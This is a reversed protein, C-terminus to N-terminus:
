MTQGVVQATTFILNIDRELPKENEGYPRLYGTALDAFAKMAADINWGTYWNKAILAQSIFHTLRPNEQQVKIHERLPSPLNTAESYFKVTDPTTIFRIFDWAENQHKSKKVVSQIWYNAVNVPENLQPAPLIELNMEPARAKIRDYDYAFGFYFASQGRTFVDLATGMKENWTYVESTPRAFASYFNLVKLTPHDEKTKDLGNAFTVSKGSAMTVGNQMLLLSFIDFVNEINEGTGLAVGAQLIKGDKDFKRTKKVAEIFEDWTKPPEPIGAKDLLDKNYYVALTDFSLPLGYIQDGIIADKAVTPIYKDKVYKVTPMQNVDTEVIIDKSINGKQILRAMKVSVPMTSLRNQYQRLWRVHMSVIDPQVDDALANTFLRDFEDYRVQRINVTVYPRLKKYEGALKKLQDVDDFITWYTLTVPKVASQQEKSLGKCGLGSILILVFLFIFHKYTRKM